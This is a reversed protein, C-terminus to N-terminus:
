DMELLRRCVVPSRGTPHDFNGLEFFESCDCPPGDWIVKSAQVFRVQVGQGRYNKWAAAMAETGHGSPMHEDDAFRVKHWQNGMSDRRAEFTGESL